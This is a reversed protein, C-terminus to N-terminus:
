DDRSTRRDTEDRDQTKFTELGLVDGSVMFTEPDLRRLCDSEEKVKTNCIAKKCVYTTFPARLPPSFVGFEVFIGIKPVV